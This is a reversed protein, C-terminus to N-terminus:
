SALTSQQQECGIYLDKNRSLQVLMQEAYDAIKRQKAAEEPSIPAELNTPEVAALKDVVQMKLTALKCYSGVISSFANAANYSTISDTRIDRTLKEAILPALQQEFHQIGQLLEFHSRQAEDLVETTAVIPTNNGLRMQKRWSFLQSTTVDYKRAVASMSSDKQSAEDLM